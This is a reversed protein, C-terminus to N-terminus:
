FRVKFPELLEYIDSSKDIDERVKELEIPLNAM